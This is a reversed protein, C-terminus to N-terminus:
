FHQHPLSSYVNQLRFTGTVQPHSYAPALHSEVVVVGTSCSGARWRLAPHWGEWGCAQLGAAVGRAGTERKM